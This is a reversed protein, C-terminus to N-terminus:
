PVVANSNNWGWMYSETFWGHLVEQGMRQFPEPLNSGFTQTFITNIQQMPGYQAIAWLPLQRSDGPQVQFPQSADFVYYANYGHVWDATDLQLEYNINGNLFNFAPTAKEYDVSKKLDNRGPLNNWVRNFLDQAANNTAASEAEQGANALAYDLADGTGRPHDPDEDSTGSGAAGTANPDFSQWPGQDTTNGLSHNWVNCRTQVLLDEKATLGLALYMGLGTILIIFPLLIVFEVM